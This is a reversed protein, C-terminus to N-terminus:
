GCGGSIARCRKCIAKCHSIHDLEGGCRECTTASEGGDGGECGQIYPSWDLGITLESEFIALGNFDTYNYAGVTEGIGTVCGAGVTGLTTPAEIFGSVSGPDPTLNVGAFVASGSVGGRTEIFGRYEGVTTGGFQNDDYVWLNLAYILVGGAFTAAGATLAGSGVEYPDEPGFIDPGVGFGRGLGVALQYYVGTLGRPTPAFTSLRQLHPNLNRWTHCNLSGRIGVRITGSAAGEFSIRNGPQAPIDTLVRIRPLTYRFNMYAPAVGPEGHHLLSCGSSPPTFTPCCDFPFLPDPTVDCCCPAGGEDTLLKRERIVLRRDKLLLAPM